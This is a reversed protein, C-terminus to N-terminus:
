GPFYNRVQSEQFLWKPRGTKRENGQATGKKQTNMNKLQLRSDELSGHPSAALQGSQHSAASTPHAQGCQEM